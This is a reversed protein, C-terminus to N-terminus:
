LPTPLIRGARCLPFCLRLSGRFRRWRSMPRNQKSRYRFYVLRPMNYIIILFANIRRPYGSFASLFLFDRTPFGRNKRQRFFNLFFLFFHQCLLPPTTYYDLQRSFLSLLNFINSFLISLSAKIHYYLFVGGIFRATRDKFILCSHHDKLNKLLTLYLGLVFLTIEPNFFCAFAPSKTLILSFFKLASLRVSNKNLTQDQSLVFAPPTGLM